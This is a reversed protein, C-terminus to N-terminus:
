QQRHNNCRKSCLQGIFVTVLLSAVVASFQSHISGNTLVSFKDWTERIESIMLHYSHNIRNTLIKLRRKIRPPWCWTFNWFSRCWFQSSSIWFSHVWSSVNRPSNQTMRQSFSIITAGCSLKIFILAWRSPPSGLLSFSTFLCSCFISEIGFGSVITLGHATTIWILFADTALRAITVDKLSLYM